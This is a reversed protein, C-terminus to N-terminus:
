SFQMVVNMSIIILYTDYIIMLGNGLWSLLVFIDECM